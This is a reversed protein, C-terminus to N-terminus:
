RRHEDPHDESEPTLYPQETAPHEDGADSEAGDPVGRHAAEIEEAEPDHGGPHRPDDQIRIRREHENERRRKEILRDPTSPEGGEHTGDPPDCQDGPGIGRGGIWATDRDYEESRDEIRGVDGCAPRRELLHRGRRESGV